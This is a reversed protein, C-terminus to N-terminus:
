GGKEVKVELKLPKEPAPGIQPVGNIDVEHMGLPANKAAEIMVKADKDGAAFTPKEFHVMLGEPLNKAELKVDQKFDSGRSITVTVEKKEGQKLTLSPKVGGLSLPGELRFSNKDGLVPANGKPPAEDVPVHPTNPAASRNTDPPAYNSVRSTPSTAGPGGPGSTNCGTTMAAAATVLLGAVLKKM